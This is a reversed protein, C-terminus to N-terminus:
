RTFYSKMPKFYYDDWGQWYSDVQDEPMSWHSITFGNKM